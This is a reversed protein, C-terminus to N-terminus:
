KAPYPRMSFRQMDPVHCRPAVCNDVSAFLLVSLANWKSRDGPWQPMWRIRGDDVYVAPLGYGRLKAVYDPTLPAGQALLLLGAPSYIAEGLKMEPSVSELSVLRMVGWGAIAPDGWVGRAGAARM